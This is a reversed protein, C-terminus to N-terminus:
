ERRRGNGNYRGCEGGRNSAGRAQASIGRALISILFSEFHSFVRWGEILGATVGDIGEGVLAAGRQSLKRRHALDHGRRAQLHKRTAQVVCKEYIGRAGDQ